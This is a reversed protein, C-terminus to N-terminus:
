SMIRPSSPAAFARPQGSVGAFRLGGFTKFHSVPLEPIPNNAYNALARDSIPSPTTFDFDRISRNYRETTPM